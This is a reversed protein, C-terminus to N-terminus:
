RLRGGHCAFALLLTGVPLPTGRDFTATQMHNMSGRNPEAAPPGNRDPHIPEAAPVSDPIQGELSQVGQGDVGTLADPNLKAARLKNKLDGVSQLIMQSRRADEEISKASKGTFQGFYTLEEQTRQELRNLMNEAKDFQKLDIYLDAMLLNFYNYPIRRDPMLEEAKDLVEVAKKHKGM